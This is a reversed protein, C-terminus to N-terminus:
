ADGGNPHTVVHIITDACVTVRMTEPGITADFGTASQTVHIPPPTPFQQGPMQAIANSSVAFALAAHFTRTSLM